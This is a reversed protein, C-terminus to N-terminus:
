NLDFDLDFDGFELEGDDQSNNLADEPKDLGEEGTYGDFWIPNAIMFLALQKIFPTSLLVEQAEVWNELEANSSIRKGNHNRTSGIQMVDLMDVFEKYNISHSDVKRLFTSKVTDLDINIFTTDPETKEFKIIRAMNISRLAYNKLNTGVEIVRVYGRELTKVNLFDGAYQGEYAERLLGEDKYVSHLKDYDFCVTIDRRQGSDKIFTVNYFDKSAKEFLVQMGVKIAYLPVIRIGRQTLDLDKRPKSVKREGNKAVTLKVYPYMGDERDFGCNDLRSGYKVLAEDISIGLWEAVVNINATVLSKNYSDKFGSYDRQRIVTPIECYCLYDHLLYRYLTNRYGDYDGLAEELIHGLKEGNKNELSFIDILEDSVRTAFGFWKNSSAVRNVLGSSLLRFNTKEGLLDHTENGKIYSLIGVRNLELM